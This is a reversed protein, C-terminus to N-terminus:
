CVVILWETLKGPAEAEEYGRLFLLSAWWLAYSTIVLQSQHIEELFSDM